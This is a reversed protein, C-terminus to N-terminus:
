AFTLVSKQNCFTVVHVKNAM